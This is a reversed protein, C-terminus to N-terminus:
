KGTSGRRMMVFAMMALLTAAVVVILVYTTISSDENAREEIRVTYETDDAYYDRDDVVVHIVFHVDGAEDPVNFTVRYVGDINPDVTESNAYATFDLPTGHSTNDWHVGVHSIREAMVGTPITFRVTVKGGPEAKEEFAINGMEPRDFVDISYEMEAYFHEGLVIAHVVFYVRTSADPSNFTAMHDSGPAGDTGLEVNTYATFDLGGGAHSTTDWHVATHTLDEAAVDDVDWRVQAEGDLYVWETHNVLTLTPRAVVVVEYEMEAYFHQDMAIAHVLLFVSGPSSPADFTVMHDSAVDGDMGLETNAYAGFVLPEGRPSTDWHVATHTVDGPAVGDIDWWVQVTEDVFLRSTMDVVMLQPADVVMVEYETEAYFHEDMVIAHVVLFVSGSTAPATFTAMFDSGPSGSGAAATYAYATFDMGAGAHSVGDWHVATHTVDELVVTSVNWTVEVTGGAFVRDPLTVDDMAPRDVVEMTYEIEAYYHADWIIAHVVFHVSTPSSPTTMNAHYRGDISGMEGGIANPYNDTDLPEGHSTTDWHIATHTVNGPSTGLISWKFLAVSDVFVAKPAADLVVTLEDVVQLVYEAEAYYDEGMVIAHFVLYLMGPTGPVTMLASYEGATGTPVGVIANAYNSFDLPEGHSVTDWHVANHTIDAPDAEEIIWTLSVTAGIFAKSPLTAMVTPTPRDRVEVQHETSAYLHNGDVIAHVIVYVTGAGDPATFNTEYRSDAEGTRPVSNNPYANFDLPEGHSVTDWHVTTHTVSTHNWVTLNIWYVVEVREGAYVWSPATAVEVSADNPWIADGRRDHQSKFDDKPGVAWMVPITGATPIDKDWPDGTSLDRRFEVTTWGTVETGAAESIDDTGGQDTDPDHPGHVGTSYADYISLVDGNEVWGFVMDSDKMRDVPDFGISVWGTTEASIGMWLETGTFTWYVVFRDDDYSVMMDYEGDAITGDITPAADVGNSVLTLSSVAAMVALVTLQVYRSSNLFSDEM